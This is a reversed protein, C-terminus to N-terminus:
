PFLVPHTQKFLAEAGILAADDGLAAAVVPTQSPLGPMHTRLHSELAPLIVGPSRLVGGGLVVIEPDFALVANQLM